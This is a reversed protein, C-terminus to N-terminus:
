VQTLLQIGAAEMQAYLDALDADAAVVLNKTGVGAERYIVVVEVPTTGIVQSNEGAPSGIYVGGFVDDEGFISGEANLITGIEIKTDSAASAEMIKRSRGYPLQTEYQVVAGLRTDRSDIKPM